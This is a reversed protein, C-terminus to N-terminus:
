FSISKEQLLIHTSFILSANLFQHHHIKYLLFFAKEEGVWLYVTYFYGIAFLPTFLSVQCGLSFSHMGLLQKLAQLVQHLVFLPELYRGAQQLLTTACAPTLPPGIWGKHIHFYLGDFCVFLYILLNKKKKRETQFM